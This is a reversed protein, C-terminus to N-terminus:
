GFRGPAPYPLATPDAPLHPDLIDKIPVIAAQLQEQSYEASLFAPASVAGIAQEARARIVDRDLRKLDDAGGIHEDNFFIQPVTHRQSAVSMLMSSQVDAGLDIEPFPIDLEALLGKAEVCHPCERKSFVVVEGM